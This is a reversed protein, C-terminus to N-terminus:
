SFIEYRKEVIKKVNDCTKCTKCTGLKSYYKMMSEIKIEKGRKENKDFRRRAIRYPEELKSLYALYGKIYQDENDIAEYNYGKDLYFKIVKDISDRQIINLFIQSGGKRFIISIDKAMINNLSLKHNDNYIRKEEKILNFIEPVIPGGERAEIKESFLREDEWVLHWAQSYYLFRHMDMGIDIGATQDLIYAAVDIARCEKNRM